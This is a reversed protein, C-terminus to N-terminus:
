VIYLISHVAITALWMKCLGNLTLIGVVKQSIEVVNQLSNSVTKGRSAISARYIGDDLTDLTQRNTQKDTQSDTVGPITDFRSLRPDRL